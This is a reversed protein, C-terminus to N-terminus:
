CPSALQSTYLERCALYGSYSLSNLVDHIKARLQKDFNTFTSTHDILAPKVSQLM